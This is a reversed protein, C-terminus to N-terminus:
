AGSWDFTWAQLAKETRYWHFRSESAECNIGRFLLRCALILASGSGSGFSYKRQSRVIRSGRTGHCLVGLGKAHQFNLSGRVFMEPKTVICEVSCVACAFDLMGHFPPPPKTGPCLSFGLPQSIVYFSVHRDRKGITVAQREGRERSISAPEIQRGM